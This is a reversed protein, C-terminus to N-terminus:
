CTARRQVNTKWSCKCDDKTAEKVEDENVTEMEVEKIPKPQAALGLLKASIRELRAAEVPGFVNKKLKQNNNKIVSARKSKAM